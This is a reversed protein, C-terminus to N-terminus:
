HLHGLDFTTEVDQDDPTHVKVTVDDYSDIKGINLRLAIIAGSIQDLNAVADSYLLSVETSSAPIEKKAQILRITFDRQFDPMPASPGTPNEPPPGPDSDTLDVGVRVVFSFEKSAFEKEADQVNPNLANQGLEVVQRYPTDVSIVAGHPGTKPMPLSHSYHTLFESTVSDNRNGLLYAARISPSSLPHEYALTPLAIAAM